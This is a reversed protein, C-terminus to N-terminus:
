NKKEKNKLEEKLSEILSTINEIKNSDPFKEKLILLYKEAEEANEISIYVSILNEYYTSVDPSVEILELYISVAKEKEGKMAYIYAINEKLTLNEKDRELLTNFMKLAKEWNSQIVSIKAIKYYATWYLEECKLCEEYYLVAKDYKKLSFYEDAILMYQNYLDLKEQATQGPIVKLTSNCGPSLLIFFLSLLFFLIKPKALSLKKLKM